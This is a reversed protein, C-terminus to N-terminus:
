DLAGTAALGWYRAGVGLGRYRGGAFFFRAFIPVGNSKRPPVSPGAIGLSGRGVTWAPVTILRPM